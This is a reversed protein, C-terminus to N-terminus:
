LVLSRRYLLELGAAQCIFVVWYHLTDLTNGLRIVFFAAGRNDYLGKMGTKM